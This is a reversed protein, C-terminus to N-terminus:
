VCATTPEIGERGGYGERNLAKLTARPAPVVVAARWRM